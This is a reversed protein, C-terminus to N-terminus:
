ILSNKKEELPEHVDSDKTSCNSGEVVCGCRVLFKSCEGISDFGLHGKFISIGLSPRYAKVMRRLGRMRMTPVMLDTLSRSLGPSDKHIRFFQIYDGSTMAERTKLAHAIAPNNKQGPTLQLLIKFMDSSGGDYKENTSLFVYYLLRYAIFEDENGM